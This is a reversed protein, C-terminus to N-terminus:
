EIYLSLTGYIPTQLNKALLKYTLPIVEGILREAFVVRPSVEFLDTLIHHKIDGAHDTITFFEESEEVKPYRTAEIDIDVKPIILGFPMGTSKPKRFLKPAVMLGQMKPVSLVFTADEIYQGEENLVSVNVKHAGVELLEYWDDDHYTERVNELAKEIEPITRREYPVPGLFANRMTATDMAKMLKILEIAQPLSPVAESKAEEARKKELIAKLDEAARYSPFVFDKLASLHLSGALEKGFGVRVREGLRARALKASYIGDMDARTLKTQHTGKRIFADGRELKEYQKRMMYPQDECPEIRLVGLLKGNVEFPAYSFRIEPEINERVLQQYIADDIFAEKSIGILDREGSPKHKVGIVILRDGSVEANALSIVDKLLDAHQEKQYQVSKFDLSSNENEYLILDQLTM